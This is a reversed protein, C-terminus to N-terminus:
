APAFGRLGRLSRRIDLQINNVRGSQQGRHAGADRRDGCFDLRGGLHQGGEDERHGCVVAPPLGAECGHQTCHQHSGGHDHDGGGDCRCPRPVVEPM